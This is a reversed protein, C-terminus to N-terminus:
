ILDPVTCTNTTPDCRGSCCDEDTTCTGGLPICNTDPPGCVGDICSMSCCDIDSICAGGDPVCPEGGPCCVLSGETDPACLLCCCEDSFSCPEGDLICSEDPPASFCRSVGAITPLCLEQGGCCNNASGSWCVEGPNLCGGPRECRLVEDNPDEYCSGSCCDSNELCLELISRCGSLYQCTPTGTGSDACAGSCCELSGTCPEGVVTCNALDYCYGEDCRLTCCDDDETCVEGGLMCTYHGMCIGGGEPLIECNESCCTGDADCPEGLPHCAEPSDLCVSGECINSCCDYNEVCDGGVPQCRGGEACIGSVCYLSCCDSAVLCTEGVVGCTGSLQCRKVGDADTECVGSCCEADLVCEEGPNECTGVSTSCVGRYCIGTCCQEAATCGAGVPSCDEIVDVGDPVVGDYPTDPLVDGDVGDVTQDGTGDEEEGNKSGCSLAFLCLFFVSLMLLTRPSHM